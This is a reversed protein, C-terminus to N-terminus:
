TTMSCNRSLQSAQLGAGEVEVDFETIKDLLVEGDNLIKDLV